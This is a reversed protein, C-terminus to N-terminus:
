IVIITYLYTCIRLLWMNLTFEGVKESLILINETVILTTCFMFWM